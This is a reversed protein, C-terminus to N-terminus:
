RTATIGKYYDFIQPLHGYIFQQGAQTFHVRGEFLVLGAAEGKETPLVSGDGSPPEAGTVTYGEQYLWSTILGRPVLIPQGKKCEFAGNIVTELYAAPVPKPQPHLSQVVSDSLVLERPGWKYAEGSALDQVIGNLNDLIFQQAPISWLIKGNKKHKTSQIGLEEGARTPLRVPAKRVIAPVLLGKWVLWNSLETPVVKKPLDEPLQSNIQNLMATLTVPEETCATSSHWEPTLCALLPEWRKQNCAIIQEFNDQLLQWSKKGCLLKVYSEGARNTREEAVLGFGLGKQTPLYDTLSSGTRSRRTLYGERVLWNYAATNLFVPAATYGLSACLGAMFDGLPMGGPTENAPEEKPPKREPPEEPRQLQDLERQLVQSVYQFCKSLREQGLVSDEPVARGSIPDVGRALQDIYNKAHTLLKAEEM